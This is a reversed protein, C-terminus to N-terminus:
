KYQIPTKWDPGYYNLLMTEYDNHVYVKAKRYFILKLPLLTDRAISRHDAPLIREMVTNRLLVPYHGRYVRGDNQVVYQDIDAHIGTIKHTVKIQAKSGLWKNIYMVQVKYVSKDLSSLCSLIDQTIGPRYIVQLDIDYDHKILSNDRILGLLTGWDVCIDFKTFLRCDCLDDWLQNLIVIRDQTDIQKLHTNIWNERERTQYLFLVCPGLTWIFLIALCLIVIKWKTRM